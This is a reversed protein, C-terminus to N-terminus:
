WKLVEILVDITGGCVMGEEQAMDETMDIHCLRAKQEGSRIMSLARRLIDSEVCGGGITGICSGDPLALMKTGVGRPASGKRSVITMLAKPMRGADKGELIEKMIERSYGAARKTQRKVKIIEALIAVAIEEPTEAGVDLGIPTYVRRVAEADCGQALIAEKVKAVRRRSGIMGIYAHEKAVIRELCIQDYRHGRTVIVFYTDSDGQVQELGQAFPACIVLDAGARRADDAFKPRDELVAVYSGLMKGIQIVPISVHGAGCVVIKDESAAAECYVRTGEIEYVGSKGISGFGERCQSFFGSPVSEWVIDQGEVVAKEAFSSGELVTMAIRGGKPDADKIAQYFGLM